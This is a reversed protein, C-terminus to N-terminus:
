ATAPTEFLYNGVLGVTSGFVVTTFVVLSLSTTVIVDRNASVSPEIRLVLGFAIAGRILGAYWIFVLEKFSLPNASKSEYGCVRLLSYLGITAVARGVVVIVTMLTILGFSWPSTNLSFFTLGLYSFVFAEALSSLFKFVDASNRQGQQSLSYWTYHAMGIGSTLLSIIGSLTLLEATVYALYGHCFIMACEVVADRTLSRLNKMLLASIAAYVLGILISATGLYLFDLIVLGVQHADISTKQGFTKLVTNFLIISVADNTVGEGFVVSFLKPQEASNILSIAAVVDSSCM